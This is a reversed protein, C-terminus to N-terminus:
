KRKFACASQLIKTDQPLSVINFLGLGRLSNVRCDNHWGVSKYRWHWNKFIEMLLITQINHNKVKDVFVCLYQDQITGYVSLYCAANM